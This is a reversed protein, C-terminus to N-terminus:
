ENMNRYTAVASPSIRNLYRFIWYKLVTDLIVPFTAIFLFNFDRNEPLGFHRAVGELIIEWGHPSHYGVFIDTLLIILFAKASDSLGYVIDNTFSKVIAIEKQSFVLILIFALLSFLDAFVNSIANIALYRYEQAIEEAKIEIAKEVEEHSMKPRLGIMQHFHLKEEYTSLEKFAEEEFDKNIFVLQEHHVTYNKVLPTILFTKTIQHTLLPVIILILFFKISVATKYRSQRFNNIVKEETEDSKPDIETQIRKLTNLFSRPVVNTKGAVSKLEPKIRNGNNESTAKVILTPSENYRLLYQDILKIKQLIEYNDHNNAATLSVSSRSDQFQKLRLKALNLNRKLENEFYLQVTESYNTNNSIKQGNFHDEELAKITLISQYAEELARYPKDTFWRRTNNVLNPFKM